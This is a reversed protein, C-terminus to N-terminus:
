SFYYCFFLRVIALLLIPCSLSAFPQLMWATHATHGDGQNLEAPVLHHFTHIDANPIAVVTGLIEQISQSINMLMLYWYNHNVILKKIKNEAIILKIM